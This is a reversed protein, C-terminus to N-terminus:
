AGVKWIVMPVKAPPYAPAPTQSPPAALPALSARLTWGDIEAAGWAREPQQNVM